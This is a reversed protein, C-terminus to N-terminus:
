KIITKKHTHSHCHNCNPPLKLLEIREEETLELRIKGKEDLKDSLLKKNISSSGRIFFQYCGNEIYVDKNEFILRFNCGNYFPKVYEKIKEVELRIPM